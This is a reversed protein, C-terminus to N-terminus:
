IDTERERERERKMEEAVGAPEVVRRRLQEMEPRTLLREFRGRSPPRPIKCLVRAAGELASTAMAANELPWCRVSAVREELAGGKWSNAHPTRVAARCGCRAALCQLEQLSLWRGPEGLAGRLAQRAAQKTFSQPWEGSSKVLARADFLARLTPAANELVATQGDSLSEARLGDAADM